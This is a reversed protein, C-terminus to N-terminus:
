DPTGGGGDDLVRRLIDCVEDVSGGAHLAMTSAVKTANPDRRLAELVALAQRIAAAGGGPGDYAIINDLCQQVLQLHLEVGRIQGELHALTKHAEVVQDGRFLGDALGFTLMETRQTLHERLQALTGETGETLARKFLEADMRQTEKTSIGAAM